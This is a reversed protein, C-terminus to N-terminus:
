YEALLMQWVLVTINERGSGHTTKYARKGKPAVSMQKKHYLPFGTEDMNWIHNSQLNNSNIIGHLQEYFDYILFPNSTLDKREGSIMTAKKLTLKNTKFFTRVM